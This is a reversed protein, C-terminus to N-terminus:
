NKDRMCPSRQPQDTLPWLGAIGFRRHLNDIMQEALQRHRQEIRIMRRLQRRDDIGLTEDEALAAQYKAIRRDIQVCNEGLERLFYDAQARNAAEAAAADM